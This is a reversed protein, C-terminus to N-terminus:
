TLQRKSNWVLKKRTFRRTLGTGTSKLKSTGLFQQLKSRTIASLPVSWPYHDSLSARCSDLKVFDMLLDSMGDGYLFYDIKSVEVGEANLFTKGLDTFQLENDTVFNRFVRNRRGSNLVSIDENIDGGVLINHSCGYMQYISNLQETCDIFELVNDANQGRCPMYVSVLLIPKPSTSIEVCQIRENGEEKVTVLHDLKKQWLIGVGGYGRPLKVPLLPSGSDVSKGVGVFNEHIENLLNLECNLLWHEQILLFDIKKM